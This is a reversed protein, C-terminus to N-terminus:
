DSPAKVKGHMVFVGIVIPMEKKHILRDFVAPANYQIGDQNVYVCAPKKGDYQKPVYVWYDRVTGPFIKSKDFTYQKVEGKPVDAPQEDARLAALPLLLLALSWAFVSFAPRLVTLDKRPVDLATLE